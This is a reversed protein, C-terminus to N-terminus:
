IENNVECFKCSDKHNELFSECKSCYYYWSNIGNKDFMMRMKIESAVYFSFNFYSNEVITLLIKEPFVISKESLFKELMRKAKEIRWLEITM